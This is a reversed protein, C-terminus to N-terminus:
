AASAALLPLVEGGRVATAPRRLPRDPLVDARAHGRVPRLVPLRRHRHLRGDAHGRHRAAARLLRLPQPRRPAEGGVLLADSRCWSRPSRSAHGARHRRHRVRPPHRVGPDLRHRVRAPLPHRVARRAGLLRVVRRGHARVRGAGRGDRRAEGHRAPSAPPVARGSGRAAAPDTRAPAANGGNMRVEGGAPAAVVLVAGGLMSLAYRASSARDAAKAIPGLQRGAARRHRQGGRRRGPQRRLRPVRALWTGPTAILAENIANAYLDRRAAQVPWSVHRPREVPVPRRGVLSGRSSCGSRRARRARAHLDGVAPLPGERELLEGLSPTLWNALRDGQTLFFGAVVSGIALLVMPVTM